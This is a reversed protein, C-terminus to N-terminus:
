MRSIGKERESRTKALTTYPAKLTGEYSTIDYSAAWTPKRGDVAKWRTCNLFAPVDLLLPAHENDYRDAFEQESVGAGPEAFVDLYAPPAM